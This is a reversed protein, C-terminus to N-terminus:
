EIIIIKQILMRILELIKVKSIFPKYWKKLIQYMSNMQVKEVMM